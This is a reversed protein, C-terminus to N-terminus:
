KGKLSFLEQLSPINGGLWFRCSVMFLWGLLLLIGSILFKNQEPIKVIFMVILSIIISFALTVTLFEPVWSNHKIEMDRANEVDEIEIKEMNENNQLTMKMMDMNAQSIKSINDMEFQKLKQMANSDNQIKQFLDIPDNEKASFLNAIESVFLAGSTGGVTFGLFPAGLEVIKKGIDMWNM